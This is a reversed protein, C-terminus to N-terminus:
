ILPQIWINKLYYGTPTAGSLPEANLGGYFTEIPNANKSPWKTDGNKVITMDFRPDRGAYPNSADYGSGTENWMKGTAKMEYADVMNQTPCNGSNGGPVGM